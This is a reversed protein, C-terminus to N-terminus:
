ALRLQEVLARYRSDGGLGDFRPDVGINAIGPDRQDVAHSLLELARDRNGAAAHALARHYASVYRKRALDELQSLVQDARARGGVSALGHALWALSVADLPEGALRELEPEAEDLRGAQVLAAALLRRAPVFRDNMDLTHRCRDIAPAHDRSLYRVMACATNVVLCLPDLDCALQTAARAEAHRRQSALFLGYHRHISENSPNFMLAARYSKDAGIWDCDLIRSVEALTLHADADTQDLELARQAARRATDLGRHPECAYCKVASLHARGIAAHASAFQRDLAVAHEFFAIAQPLGSDDERNWHYLGKLYAQHAGANQTGIPRVGASQALLRLMLSQVIQTAVESQAELGDAARHEYSDAWLQTEGRTELLQVTIRAREGDKRVSGELVYDAGLARGVDRVRKATRQARRSSTRAIIGLRGACLRGLATILEEHLGESFYNDGGNVPLTSFPLVALRRRQRGWVGPDAHQHLDARDLQEVPGIFRYGRRHLTEVYRPHEASDGLAARLRKVAANLGHEFDVFTGDPWLRQRLEDRTLIEAPKELLMALVAFPQDQLRVRVGDKRLERARLDLEFRGFKV